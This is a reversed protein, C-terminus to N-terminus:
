TSVARRDMVDGCVFEEVQRPLRSGRVGDEDNVPQEQVAVFQSSRPVERHEEVRGELDGHRSHGLTVAAV